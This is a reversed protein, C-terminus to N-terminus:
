EGAVVGGLGVLFGGNWARLQFSEDHSTAVLCCPPEAGRHEDGGRHERGAGGRAGGCSRRRGDVLARAPRCCRSLTKTRGFFRPLGYEVVASLTFEPPASAASLCSPSLPVSVLPVAAVGAECIGAIWAAIVLPAFMRITDAVSGVASHGVSSLAIFFPM